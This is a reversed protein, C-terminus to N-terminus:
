RSTVVACANVGGFGASNILVRSLEQNSQTKRGVLNLDIKPDLQSLFPNAAVFSEQIQGVASLLNVAGAAALTHGTYAKISQVRVENGFLKHIANGESLDNNVTSTGHAIILDPNSSQNESWAKEMCRYLGEGGEPSTTIHYNNNTCAYGDLYALIEAGRAKANEESELLFLSCGEGLVVGSRRSDFPTCATELSTGRSYVGLRAFAFSSLFSYEELGGVIAQKLKGSRIWHYGDGIAQLSSVCLNSHLRQAGQFAFMESIKAPITQPNLQKRVESEYYSNPGQVKKSDTYSQFFKYANVLHEFDLKGFQDWGQEQRILQTLYVLNKPEPYVGVGMSVGTDEQLESTRVKLKLERICDDLMIERALRSDEQHKLISAWSISKYPWQKQNEISSKGDKLHKLFQESNNGMPGSYSCATICVRLNSM